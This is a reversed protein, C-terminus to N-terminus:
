AHHGGILTNRLRLTAKPMYDIGRLVANKGYKKKIEMMVKEIAKEKQEAEYNGFLNMQYGAESAPIVRGLSLNLTRIGLGPTVKTEYLAAFAKQIHSPIDTYQSLRQSGGSTHRDRGTYGIRLSIERTMCEEELLQQILTEAMEHILIKADQATYDEFLVQGNSISRSKPQYGRIDALTCPEKGWAHDILYRANKGFLQYLTSEPIQTIGYLDYVGIRELKRAIGGAINWIDTIPRHHWMQTKFSVEDLVGIHEPVHKAVIDMAIKALFLNPGVGATACIGTRHFVQEMLFLAMEKPTKQYLSLYPTVDIFCEDISYPFLDEPAIFELYIKYIAASVDMYLQMRPMATIYKVQRPIEYLRCRNRIGLAKMAPSIALCLAGPGRTPDAVVLNTRFPDLKRAVCEVSAYYSKLDICIYSKREMTDGRARHYYM